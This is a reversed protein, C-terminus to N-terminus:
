WKRLLFWLGRRSFLIWYTTLFWCSFEMYYDCKQILFDKIPLRKFWCCNHYHESYCSFRWKLLYHGFILRPLETVVNTTCLTTWEKPFLLIFVKKKKLIPSIRFVARLPHACYFKLYYTLSLYKLIMQRWKLPQFVSGFIHFTLLLTSYNHELM